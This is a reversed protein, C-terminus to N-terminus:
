SRMLCMRGTNRPWRQGAKREAALNESDVEIPRRAKVLTTDNRKAIRCRKSHALTKVIAKKQSLTAPSREESGASGESQDSVSYAMGWHREHRGDGTPPSNGSAGTLGRRGVPVVVRVNHEGGGIALCLQHYSQSKEERAREGTKGRAAAM